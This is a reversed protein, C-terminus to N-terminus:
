GFVLMREAVPEFEKEGPPATIRGFPMQAFLEWGAPLNWERRVDEDILPNYHQLSAGLGEAELLNWMAFQMMANAHHSWKVFNDRYLPNEDGYRRTVDNDNYFLVTGYGAAFGGIKEETKAFNEPPTLPKLVKLVFEWLKKHHDGRLLVLRGSQSNFPSPTHKVVFAVIEDLRVDSVDVNADISYISRRGEMAEYVSQSM